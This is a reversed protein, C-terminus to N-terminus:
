FKDWPFQNASQEIALVNAIDQAQMSRINM